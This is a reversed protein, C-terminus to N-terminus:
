PNQMRCQCLSFTKSAENRTNNAIIFSHHLVKESKARPTCVAQLMLKLRNTCSQLFFFFFIVCVCMPKAEQSFGIGIGVRKTTHQEILDLLFHTTKQTM